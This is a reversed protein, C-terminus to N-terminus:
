WWHVNLVQSTQSCEAVCTQRRSIAPVLHTKVAGETNRSLLGSVFTDRVQFKSFAQLAGKAIAFSRTCVARTLQSGCTHKCHRHDHAMKSNCSGHAGLRNCCVQFMKNQNLSTKDAGPVACMEIVAHWHGVPWFLKAFCNIM